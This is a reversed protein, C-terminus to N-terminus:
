AFEVTGRTAGNAVAQNWVPMFEDVLWGLSVKDDRAGVVVLKLEGAPAAAQARQAAQPPEPPTYGGPGAIPASYGGGVTGPAGGGPGEFKQAAIIAINAAGAAAIIPAIALGIPGWSLAKTVGEATNIYAQAMSALKHIYFFARYKQSALALHSTLLGSVQQAQQMATLAAFNKRAIAAKAEDDGMKALHRLKEQEMLDSYFRQVELQAAFDESSAMLDAARAEELLAARQAHFLQEQEQETMFSAAIDGVRAQLNLLRQTRLAADQELLAANGEAEIRLREQELFELEQIMLEDLTAESVLGSPKPQKEGVPKDKKGGGMLRNARAAAERSSGSAKDIAAAAATAASSGQIVRESWADIDARAAAADEKMAEGIAAAAKFDGSAFAVVQAAMGGLETGIAKFVYAVNGGLVVVTKLVEALGAGMSQSFGDSSDTAANMENVLPTLVKLLENVIVSSAGNIAAKQRVLADNFEDARTALEEAVPNLAEGARLQERLADSGQLLTPILDAGSKGFIEIALATRRAPDPMAVFLDALQLFVGNTDTATIGAARLRDEHNTMFVSLKEMGGALGDLTAGSQEAILRYATLERVTFGLQQRLDNTHDAADIVGRTYGVLAVASLTVGLTEFTRRALGAAADMRQVASETADAGRKVDAELRAVSAAFDIVMTGVTTSM